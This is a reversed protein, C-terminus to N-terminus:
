FQLVLSCEPESLLAIEMQRLIKDIPDFDAQQLLSIPKLEVYTYSGPKGHRFDPLWQGSPGAFCTPEYEWAVGARDLYAAYDAELRSRMPIGRYLTPRGKSARTGSGDRRARPM